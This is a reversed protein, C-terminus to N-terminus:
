RQTSVTQHGSSRDGQTLSRCVDHAFSCSAGKARWASRLDDVNLRKSCQYTWIAECSRRCSKLWGALHYLQGALCPLLDEVDKEEIKTLVLAKSRSETSILTSPNEMESNQEPNKARLRRCIGGLSRGHVVDAVSVGYGQKRCAAAVHIASISDLGLSFISANVPIKGLPIGSTDSLATLISKLDPGPEIEDQPSPRSRGSGIRLPLSQFSGPFAMISRRPHELIDEFIQEFDTLWAQLQKQTMVGKRSAVRLTILKRGQEFEFNTSYETPAVAGGIDLPTWLGGTSSAKNATNQFVFLTDFPQANADGIKRRWTQQIRGLSAHQHPQSDGSAQQFEVAAAENTMYTKDFVIRSPITNFLPGIVEDAGSMALSRGGVVHGFVVDRRGSVRALSKGYALLAVTQVTMGLDKCRRFIDEMNVKATTEIDMMEMETPNQSQSVESNNLDDLKRLWFEEASTESKSIARAADSFPARSSMEIGKYLRALDQFLLDISVGDYLSHHMSVLLVIETASKLIITKWPPQEFDAEGHFSTHETVDTLSDSM